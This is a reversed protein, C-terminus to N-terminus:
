NIPMGRTIRRSIWFNCHPVGMSFSFSTIAARPITNLTVPLSAMHDAKVKGATTEITRDVGAVGEETKNMEPPKIERIIIEIVRPDWM